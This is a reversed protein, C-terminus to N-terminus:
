FARLFRVGRDGFFWLWAPTVPVCFGLVHLVVFDWLFHSLWYDFSLLGSMLQLLQLGNRYESYPIAAFLGTMPALVASVALVCAVVPVENFAHELVQQASPTWRANPLSGAQANIRSGRVRSANALQAAHLMTLAAGSTAWREGSWWLTVWHGSGGPGPMGAHIEIGWGQQRWQRASLSSLYLEPEEMLPVQHDIGSEDLLSRIVVGAFEPSPRWDHVFAALGVSAAELRVLGRSAGLPAVRDTLSEYLVYFLVGNAVFACLLMLRYAWLLRLKKASLAVFRHWVSVCFHPREPRVLHLRLAELMLDPNSTATYDPQHIRGWIRMVGDEITRYPDGVHTIGMYLQENRISRAFERAKAMTVEPMYLMIELGIVSLVRLKPMRSVLRRTIAAAVALEHRLLCLRYGLRLDNRLNDVDDNLQVVGRALVVARDALVDVEASKNTTMIITSSRRMAFLLKWVDAQSIADMGSTPEDLVLVDAPRSLAVALAVKRRVGEALTSIVTNAYDSLRLSKLLFAIDVERRSAPSPSSANLLKSLQIHEQVTMFDFLTSNEACYSIFSRTESLSYQVSVDHVYINGDDPRLIGCIMKVLTSKGSGSHGFIVTIRNRIFDISLHQMQIDGVRKAVDVMSVVPEGAPNCCHKEPAQRQNAADPSDQWFEDQFVFQVNKRRMREPWPWVSDLYWVLAVLLVLSLPSSVMVPWGGMDGLNAWYIGVGRRECNWIARVAITLWFNPMFLCLVFRYLDSFEAEFDLAVIAGVLWWLTFAHACFWRNMFLTGFLVCSAALKAVYPLFITALLVTPESYILATFLLEPQPWTLVSMAVLCPLSAFVFCALGKGCLFAGNRIGQILMWERKDNIKEEVFRYLYNLCLPLFGIEFFFMAFWPYLPQCAGVDTEMAPLPFRKMRVKIVPPKPEIKRTEAYLDLHARNLRCQVPWVTSALMEELDDDIVRPGPCRFTFRQPPLTEDFLLTYNLDGPANLAGSAGSAKEIDDFLVAVAADLAGSRAEKLVHDRDDFGALEKAAALEPFARLLVERAYPSTKPAFALRHGKYPADCPDRRPGAAGADLRVRRIDPLAASSFWFLALLLVPASLELVSVLLRRRVRYVVLDRWVVLSM